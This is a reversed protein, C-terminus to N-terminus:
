KCKNIFEKIIKISTEEKLYNFEPHWQIGWIFKKDELYVAEILGDKSVAMPKLEKALDKIAQHHYTNVGIEDTKLLNYLPTNKIIDM